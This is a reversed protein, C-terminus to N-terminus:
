STRLTRCVKKGKKQGTTKSTAEEAVRRQQETSVIISRHILSANCRPPSLSPLQFLRSPPDLLVLTWYRVVEHPCRLCPEDARVPPRDGDTPSAIILAWVVSSFTHFPLRSMQDKERNGGNRQRQKLDGEAASSGKGDQFSVAGFFAIMAKTSRTVFSPEGSKTGGGLADGHEVVVARQPGLLRHIELKSNASSRTFASAGCCGSHFVM